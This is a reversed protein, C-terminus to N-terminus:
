GNVGLDLLHDREQLNGWRSRTHIKKEGIHAAHGASSNFVNWIKLCTRIMTLYWCCFSKVDYGELHLDNHVPRTNVNLSHNTHSTDVVCGLKLRFDGHM